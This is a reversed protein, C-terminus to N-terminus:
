QTVDCVEGGYLRACRKKVTSYFKNIIGNKRDRSYINGLVERYKYTLRSYLEPQNVPCLDAACMYGLADAMVPSIDVASADGEKESFQPAYAVYEAVLERVGREKVLIMRRDELISFDSESVKAGSRSHLSIIQACDNPLYASCYGFPCILEDDTVDEAVGEYVTFGRIDLYSDCSFAFSCECKEGNGVIGRIVTYAGNDTYIERTFNKGDCSIELRGRGRAEMYYALNAGTVVYVCEKGAEPTIKGMVKVCEPAFLPMLVKKKNDPFEYMLRALHINLSTVLRNEIDAKEGSTVIAGNSSYRELIQLIRDRFEGLTYTKSYM